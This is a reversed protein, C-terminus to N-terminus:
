SELPARFATRPWATKRLYGMNRKVRQRQQPDTVGRQDQWKLMGAEFDSALAPWSDFRQRLAEAISSVAQWCEDERVYGAATGIRLLDIARVRHNLSDAIYVVGDGGVALAHPANLKASKAPGGDGADTTGLYDHRSGLLEAGM